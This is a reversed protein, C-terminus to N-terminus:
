LTASRLLSFRTHLANCMRVVLPQPRSRDKAEEEEQMKKRHFSCLVINGKFSFFFRAFSRISIDPSTRWLAQRHEEIQRERERYRKEREEQEKRELEM